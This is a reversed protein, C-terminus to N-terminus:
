FYVGLRLSYAAPAGESNQKLLFVARFGLDLQVDFTHMFTIGTGLGLAFGSQTGSSLDSNALKSLAVGFDGAVYPAFDDKSLYYNGGIGANTFLSEGNVDVEGLLKITAVEADWAQAGAFSMGIGKARLASMGVGGFGLYSMRQARKKNSRAGESKAGESDSGLKLPPAARAQASVISSLGLM